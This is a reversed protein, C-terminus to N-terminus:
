SNTDPCAAAHMQKSGMSPTSCGVLGLAPGVFPASSDVGVVSHPVPGDFPAPADVMHPVPGLPAPVYAVVVVGSGVIHPVPGVLPAPAYEVVVVASDVTHPVPGDSPAPADVASVYVGVHPVPGDCPAPAHM